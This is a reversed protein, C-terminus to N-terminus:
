ELEGGCPPVGLPLTFEFRAGGEPRNEAHITGGHAEVIAKCIALGLGAGASAPEAEGRAFMAFIAQEMGGPVGPGSDEVAVAVGGGALRASITVPGGPAGHKAANDLLNCFVRQLLVADFEVLPLTAPLAVRVPHGALAGACEALAGGVAEELLQWQRNLKVAGAQLRAMDLLNTVLAHMRRAADHIALVLERSTEPPLARGEALTSSLGVITTLPTRIDHSIASLLSNRLRESEIALTADRAVDVYHVREIALAIQTACTQLLREQGPSLDRGPNAPALVLVGRTRMPARLPLYRVGASLAAGEEYGTVVEREHVTKAIMMMADPLGAPALRGQEDPFLIHARAQFTANLRRVGIDRIEENSLAGSLERSLEFLANARAERQLAVRAQFRLSATLHSIILSVALMMAFTLLYQPDAVSLSLYPPVLFVDFALVALVSAFVGPARGFRVTVFVVALLYLLILNAAVLSGRLPLALATTLACAAFAWAHGGPRATADLSSKM